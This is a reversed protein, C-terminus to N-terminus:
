TIMEIINKDDLSISSTVKCISQHIINKLIGNFNFSILYIDLFM